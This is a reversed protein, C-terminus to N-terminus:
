WVDTAVPILPFVEVDVQASYLVHCPADSVYIENAALLSETSELLEAPQLLYPRHYVQGRWLRGNAGATYLLYREVLFQELTGSQAHFPAATEAIRAVLRTFDGSSRCRHSKYRLTDGVRSFRM